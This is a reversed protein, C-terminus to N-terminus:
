IIRELSGHVRTCYIEAPPRYTSVTTRYTKYPATLGCGGLDLEELGVLAWLGEPLAGLEENGNLNLKKLGTLGGIGEPLATLGCNLLHLEELATLGEKNRLCFEKLGTLGEIREPLGRDGVAQGTRRRDEALEAAPQPSMM